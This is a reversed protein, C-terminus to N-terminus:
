NAATNFAATGPNPRWTSQARAPISGLLPSLCTGALLAALLRRARQHRQRRTVAGPLHVPPTQAVRRSQSETLSSEGLDEAGFLIERGAPV